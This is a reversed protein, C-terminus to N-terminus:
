NSIGFCRLIARGGETEPGLSARRAHATSYKIINPADPLRWNGVGRTVIITRDPGVSAAFHRAADSSALAGGFGSNFSHYPILEVAALRRALEALARGYHGDYKASAIERAVPRLKSEWWGFGGTWAWKPDLFIHSRREQRIAAVLEQRFEPFNFEAFYDAASLGPNILLILVDANELDGHYPQPMLSMHFGRRSLRGSEMVAVFDGFSSIGTQLDGDRLFDRPHVFPASDLPAEDWFRSLESSMEIMM